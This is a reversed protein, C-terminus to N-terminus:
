GGILGQGRADSLHADKGEAVETAFQAPTGDLPAVDVQVLDQQVGAEDGGTTVQEAKVEVTGCAVRFWPGSPAVGLVSPPDKAEFRNM